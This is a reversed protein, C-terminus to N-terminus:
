RARSYNFPSEAFAMFIYTDGSGNIDNDTTRCKFGNSLIDIAVAALDGEADAGNAILYKQAQNFTSRATDWIIWNGVANTQKVMLYRPRFGCYLFAGDTSGNGTFSGFKSFGAVQHFCYSVYRVGSKNLNQNNVGAGTGARLLLLGATAGRSPTGQDVTTSKAATSNLILCENQNLTIASTYVLWSDTGAGTDRPKTIIFDLATSLGTGVTQDSNSGNGTWTVVSIGATQNASVTSTISGATNSVGAGNAKWNWAVYTENTNNSNISGGLTFGDADFSTVGSVTQEANTLNSGLYKTAGRVVDFLGHDRANSRDKYWVFDPQFGLGTIAQSAGTGTYTAVNFNKSALTTSTAGVTPIPLNTTCLVKFGSPAPYAFPRQGFNMSWAKAGIVNDGAVFPYVVTGATFSYSPTDGQGVGNKYFKVTGAGVDVAVGIIDNAVYTAGSTQTVSALNYIAGNSRYAGAFTAASTGTATAENTVGVALAGSSPQAVATAEFYWKGSTPLSMTAIAAVNTTGSDTVDLNGNSFNFNASFIKLPNLTAYNGRVEGGNGYDIGWNTPGDTLSDNGSGAAVSFNNPTWNNGNGSYDKGLTTATTGTNDQFSLRFGNTGYTGSYPVPSWVGTNPDNAGFSSPTLAQGDVFNIDAMYGSFYYGANTHAGIRHTNTTNIYTANSNQAPYTASSFATLQNGNVYMKVRNSATAQTTDVAVVIHYWASVDRYVSSSVLIDTLGDTATFYLGGSGIDFFIGNSGGSGIGATFLAYYTGATVASRKVWGSWTYIQRNGAVSPTRNLYASDASNFRLSQLPYNPPMPWKNQSMWYAADSISWVGQTNALTNPNPVLQTGTFPTFTSVSANGNATIAFNNSSQDVIAPSNCTLLSTNTINFLQTPVRITTQTPDYVATGKVVRVNSMYGNVYYNTTSIGGVKLPGTVTWNTSDTGNAVRSGNVFIATQNAGTGSRVAVVHNWSNIALTTTSGLVAPGNRLGIQLQSGGNQNWFGFGNTTDNFIFCPEHTGSVAANLYTWFEVTYAGTGFSFAANSGANLEDGTGDFYVSYGADAGTTVINGPYKSM